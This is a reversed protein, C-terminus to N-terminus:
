GKIQDLENAVQEAKDNMKLNVYIYKLTELVTEEGGKLTNLKEWYPLAANLKDTIQTSLENYKKEEKYSLANREKILENCENFVLVGLNFNANFHDADIGVAKEYSEKAAGTDDLEEHIVGLSFYLDPNNPEKAIADQIGSKAEDIRDQGILINIEYKQLDVENPHVKRARALIELAKDFDEEGVAYNYLRLYINKDKMGADLAKNYNVRARDSDGAGSAAYAANIISNTDSPMIYFANEFNDAALQFEESQYNEIAKNYYYGYYGQLRSDVNEISFGTFESISKQEPDLELAKQFSELAVKMAGPENASTDLAVYIMGRYYWTKAKGMTKEYTTAQDIITKADVLEGKDYAAKAKNINPKQAYVAMCLLALSITLVQRM